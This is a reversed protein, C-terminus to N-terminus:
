DSGASAMTRNMSTKAITSRSYFGRNQDPEANNLVGLIRNLGNNAAAEAMQQYSEKASLRRSMLQRALLGSVGAMMVMGLLLALVLAM